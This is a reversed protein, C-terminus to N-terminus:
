DLGPFGDVGNGDDVITLRKRARSATVYWVRREAAMGDETDIALKAPVPLKNLCIVRDAETGKASHFTGVKVKPNRIAEVGHAMAARAMSQAKPELLKVYDGSGVLNRFADTCGAEGTDGLKLACTKHATDKNDKYFQKAGHVFLETGDAASPLLEMLRHMGLGDIGDGRRLSELACIGTVKAPAQCGGMGKTPKWPISHEDLKKALGQAYQNTRALILTDESHDLSELVQGIEAHEIEGGAEHARFARPSAGGQTMIRDAFDLIRSPCRYSVPLMEDKAVPWDAFISGDCGAWGYIEQWSDGALYGWTASRLLRKFVLASLNSMDQAEDLIWVPLMPDKGQPECEAFPHEHDWTWQRGAFRMLLDTFDLRDDRRKADEYVAAIAQCIALDPLRSDTSELERWITELSVLRQRAVDWLALARTAEGEASPLRFMDGDVDDDGLKAADDQTAEKLWAQDDKSGALLEGKSIGLQKYAVSHLTRFYGSGELETASVGFKAGARASAERRAARTFSVFGVRLPDQVLKDLVMEVLDLLRTTKGAGPGGVTRAVTVM